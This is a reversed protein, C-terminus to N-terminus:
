SGAPCGLLSLKSGDAKKNHMGGGGWASEVSGLHQRDNENNCNCKAVSFNRICFLYTDKTFFFMEVNKHTSHDIDDLCDMYPINVWM